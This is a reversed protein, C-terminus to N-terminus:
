LPPKQQSKILRALNDATQQLNKPATALAESLPMAQPTISFFATFGLDYLTDLDSSLRGALGIVPSNPAVEQTAKLVGFPTKGFQTQYDISGEGTIVLDAQKLHQKLDTATIVTEIGSAIKAPTFALFGAALGGAAGAGPININKHFQRAIITAYNSLSQELILQQQTNAGKQSSFVKTAGQFGLLPNTVDCALTITTDKLRPDLHTCDITTLDTLYGGGFPLEQQNADLFRIGLAQAMGAGGDNTASGGLGIILHKVGLDLATTVLQGTGYTTADLISQTPQPKFQIGSANAMEIIATKQNGLLGFQAKTPRHYADLVEVEYFSGHTTTVLAQATGEGGDALPVTIIEAKPFHNQFAKQIIAAAQQASLSGKFSDPAIVIKM